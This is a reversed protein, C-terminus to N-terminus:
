EDGNDITDLALVLLTERAVSVSVGQREAYRRVRATTATVNLPRRRFGKCRCGPESCPTYNGRQGLRQMHDAKEHGCRCPHVLRNM